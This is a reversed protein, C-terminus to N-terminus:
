LFLGCVGADAVCRCGNNSNVFISKILIVSTNQLKAKLFVFFWFRILPEPNTERIQSVDISSTIVM